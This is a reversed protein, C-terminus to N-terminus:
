GRAVAWLVWECGIWAAWGGTARTLTRHHGGRRGDGSRRGGDQQQAIVGVRGGSACWQLDEQLAPNGAHRERAPHGDEGATADVGGVTGVDALPDARVWLPPALTHAM